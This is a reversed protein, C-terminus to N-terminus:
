QVEWEHVEYFSYEEDFDEDAELEAVHAQASELSAFVAVVDSGEYPFVHEVVYVMM